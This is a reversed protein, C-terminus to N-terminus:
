QLIIAVSYINGAPKKYTLSGNTVKTPTVMQVTGDAFQVLVKYNLGAIINACKISTKGAKATDKFNAIIAANAGIARLYNSVALTTKVDVPAVSGDSTSVSAAYAAVLADTIVQGTPTTYTTTAAPAAPASPTSPTTVTSAAASSSTSKAAFVPVVMSVTLVAAVLLTGLKKM